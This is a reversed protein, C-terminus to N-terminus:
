KWFVKSSCSSFDWKVKTLVSVGLVPNIVEIASIFCNDCYTDDLSLVGCKVCLCSPKFLMKRLKWLNHRYQMRLWRIMEECDEM